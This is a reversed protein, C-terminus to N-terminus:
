QWRAQERVVLLVLSIAVILAFFVVTIAGAYGLDYYSFAQQYLMINMTERASGPGGQTIVYIVDFSKLADITRIVGGRRHVADAAASHHLPLRGPAPATM